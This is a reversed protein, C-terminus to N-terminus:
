ETRGAARGGRMAPLHREPGSSPLAFFLSDREVGRNHQRAVLIRRCAGEHLQEAQRVPM